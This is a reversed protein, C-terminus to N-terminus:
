DDDQPDFGVSYDWVKRRAASRAAAAVARPRGTDSVVATKTRAQSIRQRRTKEALKKFQRTTLFAPVCPADQRSARARGAAVARPKRPQTKTRTKGAKAKPSAPRGTARSTSATRKKM